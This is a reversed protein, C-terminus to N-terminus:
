SSNNEPCTPLDLLAGEMGSCGQSAAVMRSAPPVFLAPHNANLFWPSPRVLHDHLGRLTLPSARGPWCPQTQPYRSVSEPFKCRSHSRSCSTGVWPVLLPEVKPFPLGLSIAPLLPWGAKGWHGERPGDAAVSGGLAAPGPWM